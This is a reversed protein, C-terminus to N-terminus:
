NRGKGTVTGRFLRRQDRITGSGAGSFQLSLSRHSATLILQVRTIGRLTFHTHTKDGTVVDTDDYVLEDDVSYVLSGINNTHYRGADWLVTEKLLESTLFEKHHFRFVTSVDLLVNTGTADTVYLGSFNGSLQAGAPFNTQFSNQLAGLLLANNVVSNSVTSKYNKTITGPIINTIFFGGGADIVMMAFGNTKASIVEEFLAQQSSTFKFSVPGWPPSSETAGAIWGMSMLAALAFSKIM